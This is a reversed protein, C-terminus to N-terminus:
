LRYGTYLAVAGFSLNEFKNMRFGAEEMMKVFDEQAPFMRISEVLYKYSDSDGAILGGIKPIVNLSYFDYLKALFDNNVKSFELCVFKGGPKLVRWAEKLAERINTVNRIGFAITYYDFSFEEFPLIEANCCSFKLGKYINEDFLKNKGVNLMDINIDCLTIDPNKSKLYYRKAIDGTGSAMDLLAKDPELQAILKDKWLRHIGFSMADNMLDYKSAVSSFVKGVLGQKEEIDVQSFGFDVKKNM